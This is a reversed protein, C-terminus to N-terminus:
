VDLCRSTYQYDFDTPGIIIVVFDTNLVIGLVCILKHQYRYLNQEGYQKSFLNKDNNNNFICTRFIFVRGSARLIIIYIYIYIHIYIYIYVYIYISIYIYAYVHKVFCTCLYIYTCIHIYICICVYIYLYM